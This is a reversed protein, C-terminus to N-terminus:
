VKKEKREGRYPGRITFKLLDWKKNIKSNIQKYNKQWEKM